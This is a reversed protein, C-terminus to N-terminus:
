RRGRMMRRLRLLSGRMLRKRKGRMRRRRSLRSSLRDQLSRSVVVLLLGVRRLRLMNGRAM